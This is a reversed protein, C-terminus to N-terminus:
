REFFGAIAAIGRPIGSSRLHVRRSRLSVFATFLIVIFIVRRIECCFCLFFAVLFSLVICFFRHISSDLAPRGALDGRSHPPTAVDGRQGKTRPVARKKREKITQKLTLCGQLFSFWLSLFLFFFPPPQERQEKSDEM